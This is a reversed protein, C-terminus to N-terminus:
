QCCRSASGADADAAVSAAPLATGLTLLAEEGDLERIENRIDQQTAQAIARSTACKL